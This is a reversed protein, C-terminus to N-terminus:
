REPYYIYEGTNVDILCQLKKLENEEAIGDCLTGDKEVWSMDCEIIKIHWYKEDKLKIKYKTFRIYTINIESNKIFDKVLYKKAIKYADESSVNYDEDDDIFEIDENNTKEYNKMNEDYNKYTNKINDYINEMYDLQKIYTVNPNHSVLNILCSEYYPYNRIVLSKLKEMNNESKDYKVNLFDLIEKFLKVFKKVEINYLDELTQGNELEVERYMNANEKYGDGEYTLIYYVYDLYYIVEVDNLFIGDNEIDFVLVHNEIVNQINYLEDSYAGYLNAVKICINVFSENRDVKKNKYELMKFFLDKLLEKKSELINEYGKDKIDSKIKYYKELKENLANYKKIYDRIKDLYTDKGEDYWNNLADVLEEVEGSFMFFEDKIIYKADFLLDSKSEFPLKIKKLSAIEKVLKASMNVIKKYITEYKEKSILEKFDDEYLKLM